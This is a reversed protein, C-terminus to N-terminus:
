VATNVVDFLAMPISVGSVRLSLSNLATQDVSASASKVTAEMEVARQDFTDKLKEMRYALAKRNDLDSSERLDEM